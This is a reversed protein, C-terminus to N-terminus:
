KTEQLEVIGKGKLIWTEKEDDPEFVAPQTIKIVKYYNQLNFDPCKFVDVFGGPHLIARGLKLDYIPVVAYLEEEEIYCALFRGAALDTKFIPNIQRNLRREMPNEVCIRYNEQYHRLFNTQHQTDQIGANYHNCFEAIAPSLMGESTESANKQSSEVMEQLRLSVENQLINVISNLSNLVERTNNENGAALKQYLVESDFTKALRQIRNSVDLM